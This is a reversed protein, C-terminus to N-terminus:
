RRTYVLSATCETITASVSAIVFRLTHGAYYPVDLDHTTWVKPSTSVIGVLNMADPDASSGSYLHLTVTGSAGNCCLAIRDIRANRSIQGSFAHGEQPYLFGVSKELEENLDTEHNATLEELSGIRGDEVEFAVREDYLAYYKGTSTSFYGTESVDEQISGSADVIIQALAIGESTRTSDVSITYSDYVRTNFSDGGDDYRVDGYLPTYELNVYYTGASTIGTSLSTRSPLAPRYKPDDGSSGSATVTSPVKIVRGEGDIAMGSNISFTTGDSTTVQLMTDTDLDSLVVGPVKTVAKLYDRFAKTHAYGIMNLDRALVGQDPFFQSGYGNLIDAM